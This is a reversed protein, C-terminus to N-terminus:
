VVRVSSKEAAATSLKLWLYVVVAYPNLKQLIEYIKINKNMKMTIKFRNDHFLSM